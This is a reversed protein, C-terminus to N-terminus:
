LRKWNNVPWFTAIAKGQVYGIPVFSEEGQSYHYASDASATRNDGMVWLKGNPVTVDFVFNCPYGESNIYADALADDNVIVESGKERCEVRDGPLGVVRKVLFQSDPDAVLGTFSLAKKTQYRLGEQDSDELWSAPDNFVVVDGRQLALLDPELKSVVIKDDVDLTPYMSASPIYFPQVLFTRVIVAIILAAIVTIILERTARMPTSRGRPRPRQEDDEVNREM